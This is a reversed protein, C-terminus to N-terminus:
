DQEVIYLGCQCMGAEGRECMDNFERCICKTDPNREPKSLCYGSNSKLEKRIERVYERDPNTKIHM